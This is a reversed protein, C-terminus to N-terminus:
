IQGPWKKWKYDLIMKQSVSEGGVTIARNSDPANESLKRFIKKMKATKIRSNRILM